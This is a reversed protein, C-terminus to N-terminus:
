AVGRLELTLGIEAGKMQFYLLVVFVDELFPKVEVHPELIMKTMMVVSKCYKCRLSICVSQASSISVFDSM